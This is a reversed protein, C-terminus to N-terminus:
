SIACRELQWINHSERKPWPQTKGLKYHKASNKCFRHQTKGRGWGVVWHKINGFILRMWIKRDVSRLPGQTYTSEHKHFRPTITTNLNSSTLIFFCLRDGFCRKFNLIILVRQRMNANPQLWTNSFFAERTLDNVSISKSHQYGSLSLSSWIFVLIGSSKM